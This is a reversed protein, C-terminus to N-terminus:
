CTSVIFYDGQIGFSSVDIVREPVLQDNQQILVHDGTTVYHAFRYHIELITQWVLLRLSQM